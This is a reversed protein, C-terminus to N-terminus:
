SNKCSCRPKRVLIATVPCQYTVFLVVRIREAEEETQAFRDGM